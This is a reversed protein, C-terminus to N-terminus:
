YRKIFESFDGAIRKETDKRSEKKFTGDDKGESQWRKLIADIYHWNRKNHEVAIRFAEPIWGAPYEQAADKLAEAIMPTLMGINEEYLRYISPRESAIEALADEPKWLGARIQKVAERSMATNMFYLKEQINNLTVEIELLTGRAVARELAYDLTLKADQGPHALELGRMLDVADTFDRRILYRVDGERQQLAYFGFLTVKLEALDDILPLLDTFFAARIHAMRPIGPPFGDFKQM